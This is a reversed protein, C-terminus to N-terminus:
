EIKPPRREKIWDSIFLSLYNSALQYRVRLPLPYSYCELDIYVASVKMDHGKTSTPM